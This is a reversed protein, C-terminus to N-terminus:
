RKSASTHRVSHRNENQFVIEAVAGPVDTPGIALTSPRSGADGWVVTDQALAPAALLALSAAFAAVRM